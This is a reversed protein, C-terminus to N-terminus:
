REAELKHIQFSPKCRASVPGIKHVRLFDFFERKRWEAESRLGTHSGLQFGTFKIYERHRQPDAKHLRPRVFNDQAFDYLIMFVGFKKLRLINGESLEHPLAAIIGNKDPSPLNEKEM